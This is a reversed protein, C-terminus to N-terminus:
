QQREVRGFAARAALLEAARTFCAAADSLLRADADTQESAQSSVQMLVAKTTAIVADTLADKQERTM